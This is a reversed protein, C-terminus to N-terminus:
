IRGQDFPVCGIETPGFGKMPGTPIKYFGEDAVQGIPGGFISGAQNTM